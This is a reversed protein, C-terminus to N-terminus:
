IIRHNDLISTYEKEGSYSNKFRNNRKEFISIYGKKYTVYTQIQTMTNILHNNKFTFIQYKLLQQNQPIEKKTIREVELLFSVPPIIIGTSLPTILEYEFIQNPLAKEIKYEAITNDIDPGYEGTVLGFYSHEIDCSSLIELPLPSTEPDVLYSCNNDQLFTIYPSTDNTNDTPEATM